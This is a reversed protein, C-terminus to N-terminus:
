TLVGKERLVVIDQEGYGCALLVAETDSGPEHPASSVEAETRSFRPAPAPQVMGNLTIYTNRAKNHPHEPAEMYDLVPAFCVDTGEMIACWEDRTKGKMVARLKAKLDAWGTKDQQAKFEEPDLGAKEILLAYFQPEISGISVFKNDATEYTDYYHAGGDLMNYQRLNDWEGTATMTYFLSMVSASGDTIAADIVQGKGSKQAELLAALMGMVLFLSGGAYDGVLNLPVEPKEKSGIAALSGTISIYNIDHGAVQSLPGTQGWGTIRGYVLKPNRAMCAEPGFGLREAVGPRFGEFLADASEVLRMLAEIGEDTKLNLAISKKGRSNCDIAPPPAIGSPKSSREVVIVEAGMDALLMGAYPGPGLGKMEIIKFGALPGM